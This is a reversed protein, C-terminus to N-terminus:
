KAQATKEGFVQSYQEWTMLVQRPKSGEYGGVIGRREMIDVLRAARAYGIHFRRQLMSISATGTEIFMRAAQPLLDDWDEEEEGGPEEPQEALVEENYVPRAQEKLFSVVAEVEEDTIFAGQLRMPKAAGVPYFLMDGKGLLKEAGAMDLITRSDTQSSVAFSIRSPINAKILGTIVNVSPRQTAIVLHIGCARAMQALRCIADEVDSPAVMMLDALEDIIIVIYPLPSPEPAKQEPPPPSEKENGATVGIVTHAEQGKALPQSEGNGSQNELPTKEQQRDLMRGERCLQNYRNIDRVGAAAFLEYRQEMERVAWRLAGAAKKPDTVVPSVLHPIGNYNALEVMKPDVMLLKVEEPVAKFLISCILTNVCVSKGAGTAGAILLHPMRGLDAIVPNGTIDKGLAVTLKAPNQIFEKSELLERIQVMEIQPNPVEIGVAAKGPIPAEIRVGPAALGLAIDDALGTIRSVKIGPPPHIEYRTIAPGVSVNIVKANIGFSALIQELLQSRKQTEQNGKRSKKGPPKLMAPTPLTYSDSRESDNNTAKFELTAAVNEKTRTESDAPLLSDEPPEASPTFVLTDESNKKKVKKTAATPKAEKEPTPTAEEEPFLYNFLRYFTTKFFSKLKKVATGTFVVISTGTTMALGAILLLVLIIYTGITGFYPLLVAAPLAGLFGGGAGQEAIAFINGPPQGVHMFTLIVLLLVLAGTAQQTPKISRKYMYQLGAFALYFPILFSGNGATLKLGQHILRGIKGVAGETPTLFSALSLLALALLGLGLIEYKIDNKKAKTM